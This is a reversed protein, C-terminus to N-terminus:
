SLLLTPDNAPIAAQAIAESAVPETWSVYPTESPQYHPFNQEICLEDRPNEGIGTEFDEVYCNSLAHIQLPTVIRSDFREDIM